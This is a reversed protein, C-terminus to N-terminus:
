GVRGLTDVGRQLGRDVRRQPRGPDQLQDVLGVAGDIVQESRRPSCGSRACRWRGYCSACRRDPLRGSHPTSNILGFVAHAM